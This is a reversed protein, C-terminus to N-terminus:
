GSRSTWRAILATSAPLASCAPPRTTPALEAHVARQGLPAGVVRRAVDLVPELAVEHLVLDALREGARDAADRAEAQEHREVAEVDVAEHVDGLEAAVIEVEVGHAVRQDALAAAAHELEGAADAHLDRADVELARLDIEREVFRRRHRAAVMTALADPSRRAAARPSRARLAARGPASSRPRATSRARVCVRGREFFVRRPHLAARSAISTRDFRRVDASAETLPRTAADHASVAAAGQLGEPFKQKLLEPDQLSPVIVVDDGQKWNGPTAVSHYETLQLSDIVRLIEDFNRGTSAPYTIMLRIKKKPDIVFLSRVTLTANANPHIMDYLM